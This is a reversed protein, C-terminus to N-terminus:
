KGDTTTKPPLKGTPILKKWEAIAQERTEKPALAQYNIKKGAPVLRILHWNALYRIALQEHDLYAILVEYTEPRALDEDGFSHLLQLIIAAHAPSYKRQEVLMQYLKQDQGPGRGIWQRFALIGNELVDPHKAALLIPGLHPLDDLAAMAIVALRRRNEDDSQLFAELAADLSKEAVLKRFAELRAKADAPFQGEAGAWAPLKDLKTPTPEADGISNWQWLAPGPPEHMAMTRTAHKLEVSGKLVLVVLATVPAHDPKPQKEFPVGKAWRGFVEFAVRAGPEGLTVYFNHHLVRLRVSATGKQKLNVLDARGRDLTLDMDFAASDHLVVACEKVPYPSQGDLDTLFTLRVTGAKNEISAGPLGLLLNESLLADKPQVMQWPKGFAERRLLTGAPTVLKGVAKGADDAGSIGQLAAGASVALVFAVRVIIALYRM